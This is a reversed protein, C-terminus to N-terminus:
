QALKEDDKKAPTGYIADIEATFKDGLLLNCDRLSDQDVKAGLRQASDQVDLLDTINEPELQMVEALVRGALEISQFNLKVARKSLPTEAGEFQERITSAMQTLEERYQVTSPNGGECLHRLEQQRGKLDQWIESKTQGDAIKTFVEHQLQYANM